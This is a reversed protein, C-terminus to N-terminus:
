KKKKSPSMIMFMSRNESRVPQEILGNEGIAVQFKELLVRGLDKHALERGMFVVNVKVKDGEQLFRLANRVKFQFDHDEIKPRMKVEKIHIVKQHLKAAHQRKSQQYKFKGYDMLRCVPPNAKPSVEVLDLGDEEAKQFAAQIDIVGVQGGENDILRIRPATIRENVRVSEEQKNPTKSRRIGIAVGLKLPLKTPVTPISGVVGVTDLYHEGM